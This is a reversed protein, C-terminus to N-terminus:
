GKVYRYFRFDPSLGCPMAQDEMRVIIDLVPRMFEFLEAAFATDRVLLRENNRFAHGKPPALNRPNTPTMGLAEAAAVMRRCQEMSFVRPVVFLGPGLESLELPPRYSWPKGIGGKSGHASPVLAPWGPFPPSASASSSAAPMAQTKSAHVRISSHLTHM